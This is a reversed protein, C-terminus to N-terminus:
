FPNLWRKHVLRSWLSLLIFTLTTNVGSIIVAYTLLAATVASFRAAWGTIVSPDVGTLMLVLNVALLIVTLSFLGAWVGQMDAGSPAIHTSICLSLYLFVWFLPDSFNELTFLGATIDAAAQYIGSFNFDFLTGSKAGLASSLLHDNGPLMAMLLVLLLVSGVLLPAIGIFFNGTNQYINTRRWSHSVYGLMDDKRSPTFFKIEDIRHGFLICFLAHSLEHVPTGLWATWLIGKYGVTRFFSRSIILEFFHLVVGGAALLGFATVLQLGTVSFLYFFSQIINEVYARWQSPLLKETNKLSISSRSYLCRNCWLM